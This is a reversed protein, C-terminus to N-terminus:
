YPNFDGMICKDMNSCQCYDEKNGLPKIRGGGNSGLIDLGNGLAIVLVLFGLIVNFWTAITRKKNM